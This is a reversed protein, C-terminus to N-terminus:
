GLDKERDFHVEAYPCSKTEQKEKLFCYKKKIDNDSVRALKNDAERLRIMFTKIRSGVNGFGDVKGSVRPNSVAAVSNRTSATVNAKREM